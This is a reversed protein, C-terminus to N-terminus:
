ISSLVVLVEITHPRYSYYIYCCFLEDAVLTEDFGIIKKERAPSKTDALPVPRSLPVNPNSIGSPDQANTRRM